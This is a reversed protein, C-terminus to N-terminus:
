LGDGGFHCTIHFPFRSEDAGEEWAEKCGPCIVATGCESCKGDLNVTRCECAVCYYHAGISPVCAM